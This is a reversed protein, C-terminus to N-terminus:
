SAPSPKRYYLRYLFRGKKDMGLPRMLFYLGCLGIIKFARRLRTRKHRWGRMSSWGGDRAWRLRGIGKMQLSVEVDEFLKQKPFGGIEMLADKRLCQNQDGFGIGLVMLRGHNLGELCRMLLTNRSGQYRMLFALSVLSSDATFRQKVKWLVKKGVFTDGHLVMILAHKTVKVADNVQIGRGAKGGQVLRIPIKKQAEDLFSNEKVFSVTGDTSGGDTVIVEIPMPPHQFTNEQTRLYFISEGLAHLCKELSAEENLTPIIVSLSPVELPKRKMCFRTRMWEGVFLFFLTIYIGRNVWEYEVWLGTQYFTQDTILTLGMLLSWGWFARVNMFVNLVLLLGLYWTHVTPSWILFWFWAWLSSKLPNAHMLVLFGVIVGFGCWYGFANPFWPSVMRYLPSANYSMDRAFTVLTRFLPMIGEQADYYPAYFLVATVGFGVLFLMCRRMSGYVIFPLFLIATVKIHLALLYCTVRFFM